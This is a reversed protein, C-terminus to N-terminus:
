KAPIVNRGIVPDHSILSGSNCIRSTSGPDRLVAKISPRQDFRGCSTPGRRFWDIPMSADRFM